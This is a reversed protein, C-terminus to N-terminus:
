KGNGKCYQEYLPKARTFGLEIARTFDRCAEPFHKLHISVIGRNAYTRALTTDLSLATSFETLAASYNQLRLYALGRLDYFEAKNIEHSANEIAHTFDSIAEPYRRLKILLRGRQEYGGYYTPDYSIGKDFYCLASLTDSQELKKLGESVYGLCLMNGTTENLGTKNLADQFLSITNNWLLVRHYSISAFLASLVVLAPLILNQAM